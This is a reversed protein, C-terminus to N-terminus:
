RTPLKFLLNIKLVYFADVCKKGLLVSATFSLLSIVYICFDLRFVRKIILVFLTCLHKMDKLLTNSVDQQLMGFRCSACSPGHFLDM